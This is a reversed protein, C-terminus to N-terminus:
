FFASTGSLQKYDDDLSSKSKLHIFAVVLTM